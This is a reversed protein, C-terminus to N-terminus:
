NSPSWATRRPLWRPVHRTYELYDDGFRQHLGKEEVLPIYILNVLTFILAWILLTPIGLLVAEGYLVAMVGSIMPNRVYRYVGVVVLKQTPDWPALTGQGIIIFMRITSGMLALGGIILCAGGFIPVLNLPTPLGWGLNARQSNLILIPVIVTVAFPLLLARLHRGTSV